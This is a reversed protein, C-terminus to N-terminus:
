KGNSMTTGMNVVYNGGHCPDQYAGGDPTEAAYPGVATERIDLEEFSPTKWEKKM